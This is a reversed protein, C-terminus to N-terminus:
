IGEEYEAKEKRTARRASIIRIVEGDKSRHRETHVVVLTAQDASRGVTIWRVEGKVDPDVVSLHLPDNFVTSAM